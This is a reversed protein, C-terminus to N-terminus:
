KQENPHNETTYSTGRTSGMHTVTITIRAKGVVSAKSKLITVNCYLKRHTFCIATLIYQQTIHPMNCEKQRSKLPRVSKELM